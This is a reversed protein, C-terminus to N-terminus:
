PGGAPQVPGPGFGPYYRWFTVVLRSPACSPIPRVTCACCGGCAPCTCGCTRPAAPPRDWWVLQMLRETSVAENASLLLAALVARQKSAGVDLREGDRRVDLGGLVRFEMDVM